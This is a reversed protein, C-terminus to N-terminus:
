QLTGSLRMLLWVVVGGVSAAVTTAGTEDQEPYSEVLGTPVDEQLWDTYRRVLNM